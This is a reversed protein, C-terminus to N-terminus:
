AAIVAIKDGATASFSRSAGAPLFHTDGDAAVPAAAFKLWVATDTTVHWFEGKQAVITSVQNSGSPVFKQKARPHSHEVLTPAGSNPRTIVPGLTVNTIAM